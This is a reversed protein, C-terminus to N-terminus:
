THSRSRSPTAPRCLPGEAEAVLASATYHLTRMQSDLLPDGRLGALNADIMAKLSLILRRNIEVLAATEVYYLPGLVATREGNQYLGMLETIRM